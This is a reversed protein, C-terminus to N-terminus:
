VREKLTIQLSPQKAAQIFANFLPAPKMLSSKFEPHAQTAVFFPHTPLEIFEVLKGDPSKGSFVMGKEELINHYEPNVEYRHRHRESVEDKKDYINWVQSDKKLVAKYAGLRMTGGKHTISIQEPLIDIVKHQIDPNIETSHAQLGCVNRAYEVVALQLGFCLGLFPIKHERAHQIAKIKGEVGSSGFGGPIIIGDFKGLDVAEKEVERADVWHIQVKVGNKVAAHKLAESVSLYSDKLQYEGIGLYKGVLAIHVIESAEVMQNITDRWQSWDPEKKKKLKLTELLKTGLNEKELDLPIVYIVNPKGVGTVDPMSVIHGSKINAYQEIKKKRVDDLASKGRCLIFDPQIGNERLLKIALQTPKTKMEEIHSPIPMYTVLIYCVNEKGLDNELSKAAFLFPINEYDGVTGGIEVLVLDYKGGAEQIRSKIEQPVHPIYQVTEGLFDGRREKEILSKYIQGTTISNLKSLPEDLFREYTGLDQDIEGGDDTVWVEGHETPRLTGADCNIYPDIKIVSVSYGYEKLIRGISATAVGKGVGSIVGGVVFIYKTMSKWLRSNYLTKYLLERRIDSNFVM